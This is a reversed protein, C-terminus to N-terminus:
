KYRDGLFMPHPTRQTANRRRAVGRYDFVSSLINVGSANGLPAAVCRLAGCGTDVYV